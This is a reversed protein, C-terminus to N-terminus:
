TKKAAQEDALKLKAVHTEVEDTTAGGRWNEHTRKTPQRGTWLAIVLCANIACCTQIEIGNQNHSLLRRCGPLHKLQRFFIELTWRYASLLAIIDAPIDLLNTAIHLFGDSDDGSSGGGNKGEM